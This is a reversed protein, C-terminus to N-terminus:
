FCEIIIRIFYIKNFYLIYLGAALIYQGDRSVKLATCVTPMEFDQILEIRRQIDIYCVPSILCIMCSCIVIEYISINIALHYVSM